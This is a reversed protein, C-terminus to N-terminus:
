LGLSFSSLKVVHNDLTCKVCVPLFKVRTYTLKPTSRVKAVCFIVIIRKSAAKKDLKPREGFVRGWVSM